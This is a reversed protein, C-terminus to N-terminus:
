DQDCGVEYLIDSSFDAGNPWYISYKYEDLQMQKFYAVNRLPQLYKGGELIWNEFDIIKAKGNNFVIRLKHEQLYEVYRIRIM